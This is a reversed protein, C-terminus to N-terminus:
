PRHDVASFQVMVDDPDRFYIRSTGSPRDPNLGQRKLKEAVAGVEYSEIAICFHDLGAKERQFLTLFGNQFGLFCVTSSEQLVPLGLLKQYFDRSRGVSTVDLAVHNIGLGKFPAGAAPTARPAAVLLALGGVLERRTITGREFSELMKSILSEM